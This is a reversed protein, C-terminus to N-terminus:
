VHTQTRAQRVAGKAMWATPLSELQGTVGLHPQELILLLLVSNLLSFRM